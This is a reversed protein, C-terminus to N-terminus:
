VEEQKRGSEPAKQVAISNLGAEVLARIMESRTCNYFVEKKLGNFRPEMDPTITFSLRKRRKDMNEGGKRGWRIFEQVWDINYNM